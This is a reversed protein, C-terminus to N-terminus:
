TSLKEVDANTLQDPAVATRNGTLLIIVNGKKKQWIDALLDHFLGNRDTLFVRGECKHVLIM